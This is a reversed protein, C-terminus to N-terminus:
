PAVAAAEERTTDLFLESAAQKFHGSTGCVRVRCGVGPAGRIGTNSQVVTSACNGCPYRTIKATFYFALFKQQAANRTRMEPSGTLFFPVLDRNSELATCCPTFRTPFTRAAITPTTTGSVKNRIAEPCLSVWTSISGCSFIKSAQELSSQCLLFEHEETGARLHM